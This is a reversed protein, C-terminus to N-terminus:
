RRARQLRLAGAQAERSAYATGPRCTPCGSSAPPSSACSPWTASPTRAPAARWTACSDGDGARALRGDEAGAVPAAYTRPRAARAEEPATRLLERMLASNDHEPDGLESARTVYARYLQERLARDTAYQMVPLYCPFQLTLKYGEVRPPPRPARGRARRRARRGTRREVYLAFADTADLVHEGFAQALEASREQIARSASRRARCNPAASLVFDRLANDLAKRRAPSLPRRPAPPLAKYKAYLREDAGLPHLVRHRAAPQRQLRRAAGAHRGRTCTGGRGLRPWGSPPVDLVAALADYDAPV